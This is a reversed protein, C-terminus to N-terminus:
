WSAGSFSVVSGEGNDVLVISEVIVSPSSILIRLTDVSEAEVANLSTSVSSMRAFSASTDCPALLRHDLRYLDQPEDLGTM